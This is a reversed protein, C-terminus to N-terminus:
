ILTTLGPMAASLQRGDPTTGTRMVTAFQEFTWEGLNGSPTLNPGQPSDVQGYNGAFNEAHCSQWSAIRMLYEGYEVTTLCDFM